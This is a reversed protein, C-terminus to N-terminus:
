FIIEESNFVPGDKCVRLYGKSSRVVCGMCAGAGCAFISELSIQASKHRRQIAKLMPVPGCAFVSDYKKKIEFDIVTGKEKFSGDDTYVFVNGFEAFSDEFIVREKNRFGLVIDSEVGNIKLNKALYFMPAIGTGGAYLLASRINEFKFGNGLPGRINLIDGVKAKSLVKTGKGKIEILFRLVSKDTDFISFPRMFFPDNLDNVKLMFFQGPIPNLNTKSNLDILFHFNSIREVNVVKTDIM